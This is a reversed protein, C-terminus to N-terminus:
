TRFAPGLPLPSLAPPRRESFFFFDPRSIRQAAERVASLARLRPPGDLLLAARAGHARRSARLRSGVGDLRRPRHLRRTMWCDRDARRSAEESWGLAREVYPVLITSMGYLSFRDCAESVVIYKVQRLYRPATDNMAGHHKKKELLLRCVLNCPSQLESTHEESRCAISSIRPMAM